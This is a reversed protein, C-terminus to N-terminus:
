IEKSVLSRLIRPKASNVELILTKLKMISPGEEGFNIVLHEEAVM